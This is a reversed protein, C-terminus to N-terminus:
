PSSTLFDKQTKSHIKASYGKCIRGQSLSSIFLKIKTKSEIERIFLSLNSIIKTNGGPFEVIWEKKNKNGITNKTEESHNKGLHLTNNKYLNSLLKKHNESRIAGSTGDGGDTRNRLIGTEIDKRGYWRIYRRELALAGVESLNSELIIIRTKDRPPKTIHSKIDFRRLGSGKGIYYPSGDQRLYAYLYYIFKSM